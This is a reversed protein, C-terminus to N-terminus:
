IRINKSTYSFTRPYYPFRFLFLYSKINERFTIFYTKNGVWEKDPPVCSGNKKKLQGVSNYGTKYLHIIHVYHRRYIYALLPRAHKIIVIVIYSKKTDRFSTLIWKRAHICDVLYCLLMTVHFILKGKKKWCSRRSSTAFHEYKYKYYYDM